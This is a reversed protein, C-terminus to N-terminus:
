DSRLEAATRAGQSHLWTILDAAGSSAATDLPTHPEWGPIWNLDAGQDLLYQATALRGGHCASWFAHNISEPGPAPVATCHEEVRDSLGLTAAASLDTRAGREVLRFAVKWQRFGTADKLPSGGGLVSGPAEIDAGADLLADLVAVDDCSAAWHLPTEEHSGHFRTNVDTGAAVLAAVTAAGNPFHGPWDTVIHLLSRSMGGPGDTGLRVTALDAHEALLRQLAAQDGTHIADVVAIALPDETSITKMVSGDLRYPWVSAAPLLDVLAFDPDQLFAVPDDCQGTVAARLTARMATLDTIKQDLEVMKAQARAMLEGAAGAGCGRALARILDAIEELTFGLQQVAKILRVRDVAVAPYRRHGGSTQDPVDLLGRREYYRLTEVHVGAASAVQSARLRDGDGADRDIM